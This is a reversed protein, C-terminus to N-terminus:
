DSAVQKYTFHGLDGKVTVWNKVVAQGYTLTTGDELHLTDGATKLRALECGKEDYVLLAKVYPIHETQLGVVAHWNDVGIEPVVKINM